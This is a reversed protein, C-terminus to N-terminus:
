RLYKCKITDNFVTTKLLNQETFSIANQDTAFFSFSFLQLLKIEPARLMVFNSKFLSCTKGTGTGHFLGGFKSHTNKDKKKFFIIGDVPLNAHFVTELLRVFLVLCFLNNSSPNHESAVIIKGTFSTSSQQPALYNHLL